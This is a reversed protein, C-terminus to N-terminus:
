ENPKKALGCWYISDIRHSYYIHSPSLWFRVGDFYDFWGKKLSVKVKEPYYATPYWGPEWPKQESTDYIKSLKIKNM